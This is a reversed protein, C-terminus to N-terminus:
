NSPNEYQHIIESLKKSSLSWNYRQMNVRGKLALKEALQPDNLLKKVVEILNQINHPPFFLASDQAVERFAPIDSCIVPTSLSQAELIPIGFGEYLSPFVLSTASIILSQKTKEGIFGTFIINDGKKSTNNKLTMMAEDMKGVIVLKLKPEQKAIILFAAILTNLNKRQRANGISLLYKKETLQYNKLINKQDAIQIEEQKNTGVNVIFIKKRNIKLKDILEKKSFESITIFAKASIKAFYVSIKWFTRGILKSEGKIVFPAADYITIIKNKILWPHELSPCFLIEIKHKKVLYYLYFQQLLFLFLRNRTNFKIIKINKIDSLFLASEQNAFVLIQDDNQPWNKLLNTFFVEIGQYSTYPLANIAIKM